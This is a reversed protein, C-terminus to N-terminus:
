NIKVSGLIQGVQEAAEVRLRGSFCFFLDDGRSAELRWSIATRKQRNSMSRPGMSQKSRIEAGKTAKPSKTECFNPPRSAISPGSRFDAQTV